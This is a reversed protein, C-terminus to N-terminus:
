DIQSLSLVNNFHKTPFVKKEQKVEKSSDTGTIAGSIQGQGGCGILGQDPQTMHGVNLSKLNLIRDPTPDCPTVSWYPPSM